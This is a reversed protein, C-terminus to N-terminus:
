RTRNIGNEGIIKQNRISNFEDIYSLLRIIVKPSDSVIKYDIEGKIRLDSFYKYVKDM